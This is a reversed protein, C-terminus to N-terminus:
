KDNKHNQYYEKLNILLPGSYGNELAKNYYPIASITDKLFVFANAKDLYAEPFNNKIGRDSFVIISDYRMTEFLLKTIKQYLINREPMYRFGQLYYAKAQEKNKLDNYAIDGLYERARAYIFRDTTDVQSFCILASDKRSFFQYQIIGLNLWADNYEPYVKIANHLYSSALQVKGSVEEMSTGSGNGIENM